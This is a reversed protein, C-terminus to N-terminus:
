VIKNNKLRQKYLSLRDFMEATEEGQANYTKKIGGVKSDTERLSKEIEENQIKIFENQYDMLYELELQTFDQPNITLKGDFKNIM